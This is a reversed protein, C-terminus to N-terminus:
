SKDHCQLALELCQKLRSNEEELRSIKIKQLDCLSNDASCQKLREFIGQLMQEIQGTEISSQTISTSVNDDIPYNSLMKKIFEISQKCISQLAERQSQLSVVEEKLVAATFNHHEKLKECSTCNQHIDQTQQRPPPKSVPPKKDLQLSPTSTFSDPLDKFSVSQTSEPSFSGISTINAPYNSTPPKNSFPQLNRTVKPTPKFFSENDSESSEVDSMGVPKFRRRRPTNTRRGIRIM